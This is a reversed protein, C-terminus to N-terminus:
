GAIGAQILFRQGADYDRAGGRQIPSVLYVRNVGAERLRAYTELAIDVGDRGQELDHRLAEPVNSFLVGGAQLVQLGWFVPADLEGGGAEAFAEHFSGILAADFVPQTVYYHAGAELKRRALRAEHAVGRGLDISAGICFDTAERLKSGKYDVGANLEAIAEILGSAAYESNDLTADREVLPDGQVVLVNELGLLQAGLLRSQLALKNMDRPSLNFIVGRGTTRAVEFAVAVSDARVAKGPNYAVCIFDASLKEAGALLAPTGGRPPSFDCIFVPSDGRTSALDTVKAMDGVM